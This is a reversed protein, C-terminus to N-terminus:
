KVKNAGDQWLDDSSNHSVAFKDNTTKELARLVGNQTITFSNVYVHKNKTLEPHKLTVTIARGVQGLTTAEYEVDGGDYITVSRAPLNWGGFGPINLGWDFISGTIVAVWSIQDERSRLYEVAAVKAKLFPIVDTATPVATDVGYESPLIVQVGAAVAANVIASQQDGLGSPSVTNVIADQGAFAEQLSQKSYDSRVHRVVAPLVANSDERTMGTVEFGGPEALLAKITSKGVNSGAGLVVVKKIPPM